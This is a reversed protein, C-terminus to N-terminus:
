FGDQRFGYTNALLAYIGDYEQSSAATLKPTAFRSRLALTAQEGQRALLASLM